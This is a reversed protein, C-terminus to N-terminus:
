AREEQRAVARRGGLVVAVFGLVFAIVVGLGAYAWNSDWYGDEGGTPPVWHALDLPALLYGQWSLWSV